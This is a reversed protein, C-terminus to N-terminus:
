PQKEKREDTTDTRRAKAANTEKYDSGSGVATIRSAAIGNTALWTKVTEARRLSIRQNVATTGTSDCWGTVTIQADPHQQLLKFMVQLKTQESPSISTSNFDFYLTPFM